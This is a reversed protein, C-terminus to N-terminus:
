FVVFPLHRCEENLLFEDPNGSVLNSSHLGQVCPLRVLLGVRTGKNSNFEEDFEGLNPCLAKQSCADVTDVKAQCLIFRDKEAECLVRDELNSEASTCLPQLKPM